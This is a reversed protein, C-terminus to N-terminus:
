GPVGHVLETAKTPVKNAERIIIRWDSRVAHFPLSQKIHVRLSKKKLIKNISSFFSSGGSSEFAAHRLSGMTKGFDNFNTGAKLRLITKLDRILKLM